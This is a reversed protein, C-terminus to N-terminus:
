DEYYSTNPCFMFCKINDINFLQKMKDYVSKEFDQKTENPDMSKYERGFLYSAAGASSYSGLIFGKIDNEIIKRLQFFHLEEFELLLHKVKAIETLAKMVEDESLVTGFLIISNKKM